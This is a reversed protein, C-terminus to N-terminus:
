NDGARDPIVSDDAGNRLHYCRQCDCITRVVETRTETKKSRYLEMLSCIYIYVRYLSHTLLNQGRVWCKVSFCVVDNYFRVCGRVYILWGRM